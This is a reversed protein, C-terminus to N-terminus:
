NHKPVSVRARGRASVAKAFHNRQIVVVSVFEWEAGAREWGDADYTLSLSSLSGFDKKCVKCFSQFSCHQCIAFNSGKRDKSQALTSPTPACDLSLFPDFKAAYCLPAM